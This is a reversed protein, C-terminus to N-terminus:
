HEVLHKINICKGTYKILKKQHLLYMYELLKLPMIM